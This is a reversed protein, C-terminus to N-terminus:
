KQNDPRESIVGIEPSSASGYRSRGIRGSRRAMWGARVALSMASAMLVPNKARAVATNLLVADYGLEMAVAADSATGVGADM